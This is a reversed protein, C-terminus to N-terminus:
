AGLLGRLAASSVLVLKSSPISISVGVDIGGLCNNTTPVIGSGVIPSSTVTLVNTRCRINECTFNKHLGTSSSAKVLSALDIQPITREYQLGGAFTGSVSHHCFARFHTPLCIAICLFLLFVFSFHVKIPVHHLTRKDNNM